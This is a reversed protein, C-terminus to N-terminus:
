WRVGAGATLDLIMTGVELVERGTDDVYERERFSFSPSISIGVTLHEAPSWTVGASTRLGLRMSAPAKLSTVPGGGDIDAVPHTYQFAAGLDVAVTPSVWAEYAMGAFFAHDAVGVSQSPSAATYEGSLKAGIEVATRHSLYRRGRVTLAETSLIGDDEFALAQGIQVSLSWRARAAREWSVAAPAPPAGPPPVTGPAVGALPPVTGPASPEGSPWALDPPAVEPLPAGQEAFLAIFLAARRTVQPLDAGARGGDGLPFEVADGSGREVRLGPTDLWRVTVSGGSGGGPRAAAAAVVEARPLRLRVASALEAVTFPAAWPESVITVQLRQAGADSAQEPSVLTVASMVQTVLWIRTAM